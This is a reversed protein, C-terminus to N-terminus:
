VAQALVALLAPYANDSEGRAHLEGNARVTLPLTGVLGVLAEVVEEPLQVKPKGNEEVKPANELVEPAVKVVM